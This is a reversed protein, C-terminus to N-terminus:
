AVKVAVPRSSNPKRRAPGSRSSAAPGDTSGAQLLAGAYTSVTGSPTIKRIANNITDAVFVNGNADVAIGYNRWEDDEPHYNVFGKDLEAVM